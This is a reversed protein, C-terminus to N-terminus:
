PNAGSGEYQDDDASAIQDRVLQFLMPILRLLMLQEDAVLAGACGLAVHVEGGRVDLMGSPVLQELM